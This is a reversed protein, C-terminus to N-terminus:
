WRLLIWQNIPPNDLDDFRKDLTGDGDTDVFYYPKGVKPIVKVYRVRGNVRYEEITRDERQIITVEPEPVEAPEVPDVPLPPPPEASFLLPSALLLGTLLLPRIM